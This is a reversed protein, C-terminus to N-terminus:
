DIILVFLQLLLPFAPISKNRVWIYKMPAKPTSTQTHPWWCHSPDTATHASRHLTILSLVNTQDLRPGVNSDPKPKPSSEHLNMHSEVKQARNSNPRHYQILQQVKRGTERNMASFFVEVECRKHRSVVETTIVSCSHAGASDFWRSASTLLHRLM